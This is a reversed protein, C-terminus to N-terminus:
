DLVSLLSSSDDTWVLSQPAERPWYTAHPTLRETAVGNSTVVVWTSGSDEEGPRDSSFMLFRKDFAEAAGRVVPRLNLHTNSVHVVLVSDKRLHQRYLFAHV